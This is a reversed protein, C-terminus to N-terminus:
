FVQHLRCLSSISLNKKNKKKLASHLTTVYCRPCRVNSFRIQTQCEVHEVNTSWKRCEDFMWLVEVEVPLSLNQRDEVEVDRGRNSHTFSAKAGSLFNYITHLTSVDQFWSVLCGPLQELNHWSIPVFIYWPKHIRQIALSHYDMDRVTFKTAVMLTYLQM